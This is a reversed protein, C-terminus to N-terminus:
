NANGETIRRVAIALRKAVVLTISPGLVNLITNSGAICRALLTVKVYNSIYVYEYTDETAIGWVLYYFYAIDSLAFDPYELGYCSVNALQIVM